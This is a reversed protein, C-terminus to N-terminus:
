YSDITCSARYSHLLELVQLCADTVSGCSLAKRKGHAWQIVVGMREVEDMKHSQAWCMVNFLSNYLRCLPQPWFLTPARHQQREFAEYLSCIFAHQKPHSM